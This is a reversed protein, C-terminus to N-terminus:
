TKKIIGVREFFNRELDKGEQYMTAVKLLASVYILPHNPGQASDAVQKYWKFAETENQTMVGIGTELRQAYEYMVEVLKTGVPPLDYGAAKLYWEKAKQKDEVIGQGYELMIAFNRMADPVGLEAAKKFWEIAAQENKIIGQGNKLKVGLDNMAQPHGLHAASKCLNASDIQTSFPYSSSLKGLQYLSESDKPNKNIAQKYLDMAKKVYNLSYQFVTAGGNNFRRYMAALHPLADAYNAVVLKELIEFAKQPNHERCLIAENFQKAHLVAQDPKALSNNSYVRSSYATSYTYNKTDKPVQM